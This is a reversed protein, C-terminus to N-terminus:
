IDSPIVNFFHYVEDQDMLAVKTNCIECAVPHYAMNEDDDASTKFAKTPDVHPAGDLPPKSLAITQLSNTSTSSSSSSPKTAKPKSPQKKKAAIEKPFRLIENEIVRCHEVFMARFQHPYLAHQQCDFCLQTLCMPCSLIADTWIDEPNCGPLRNAAIKKFLWNQDKDDQDPNYLLDIDSIIRHKQLKSKKADENRPITRSSSPSSMLSSKEFKKTMDKINKAHANRGNTDSSADRSNLISTRIDYNKEGQDEEEEDDYDDKGDKEDEHDEDSDFYIPDYYEPGQDNDSGKAILSEPINLSDSDSDADSDLDSNLHTTTQKLSKNGNNNDSSRTSFQVKKGKIDNM